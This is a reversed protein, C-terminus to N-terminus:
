CLSETVPFDKNNINGDHLYYNSISNGTGKNVSVVYDYEKELTM